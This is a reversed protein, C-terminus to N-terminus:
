PYESPLFPTYMVKEWTNQGSVVEEEHIVAAAVSRFLNHFVQQFGTCTRVSDFASDRFVPSVHLYRGGPRCAANPYPHRDAAYNRALGLMHIEERHRVTQEHSRICCFRAHMHAWVASVVM